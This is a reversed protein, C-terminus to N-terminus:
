YFDQVGAAPLPFLTTERSVHAGLTDCNGHPQSNGLARTGSPFTGLRRARLPLLKLSQTALFRVEFGSVVPVQLLKLSQTALFRAGLGSVVPLQALASSRPLSSCSVLFSWFVQFTM